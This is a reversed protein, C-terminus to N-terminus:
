ASQKVEAITEKIFKIDDLNIPKHTLALVAVECAMLLIDRQKELKKIHTTTPYAM